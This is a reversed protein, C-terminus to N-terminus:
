EAKADAKELEALEAQAAELAAKAQQAAAKLVANEADAADLASQAEKLASEAHAKAGVAEDFKKKAAALAKEAADKAQRAGELKREADAQQTQTQGLRRNAEELAGATAAREKDAKDFETQRQATRQRAAELKEALQPDVPPPYKGAKMDAVLPVLVSTPIAYSEVRGARAINLGVVKGDLDVLPGGCENPLLATDHQLVFPFGGRRSSLKAGLRNQFERRGSGPHAPRRGLTATKEIEEDGRLIKLKVQDGPDRRRIVDVLEERTAVAQGDVALVVDNVLIEAKAAGSDPMVQNVRPGKEDQELVIGLVADARYLTRPAASVVGIALPLKDAGPTALWSGVPPVEDRSFAVAALPGGEVRLLAVDHKPAVGVIRAPFEKEDGTRCIITGALESAKTLVHGQDDVVTGLAREKGNCVIQVTGRGASGVVDRFASKVSAHGREHQTPVRPTSSGLRKLWNWAGHPDRKPPGAKPEDKPPDEPPEEADPTDSPPTQPEEAADPAEAPEAQQAISHGGARVPRVPVNSQTTQPVPREAAASRLHRPLPLEGAACAAAMALSLVLSPLATMNRKPHFDLHDM